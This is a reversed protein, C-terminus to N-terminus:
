SVSFHFENCLFFAYHIANGKHSAINRNLQMIEPSSNCKKRHSSNCTKQTFFSMVLLFFSFCFLTVMTFHSCLLIHCIFAEKGGFCLWVILDSSLMDYYAVRYAAHTVHVFHVFVFVRCSTGNVNYYFSALRGPYELSYLFM